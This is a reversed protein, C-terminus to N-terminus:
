YVNSIRSVIKGTMTTTTTTITTTTETPTTDTIATTTVTSNTPKTATINYTSADNYTRHYLNIFYTFFMVM